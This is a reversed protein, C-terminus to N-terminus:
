ADASARNPMKSGYNVAEPMSWRYFKKSCSLVMVQSDTANVMSARGMAAQPSKEDVVKARFTFGLQLQQPQYDGDIDCMDAGQVGDCCCVGMAWVLAGPFSLSFCAKVGTM